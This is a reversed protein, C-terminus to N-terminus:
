RARPTQLAHRKSQARRTPRNPILASQYSNCDAHITGRFLEIANYDVVVELPQTSGTFYSVEESTTRRNKGLRHSAVWSTLNSSRLIPISLPNPLRFGRRSATRGM